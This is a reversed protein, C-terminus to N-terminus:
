DNNYGKWYHGPSLVTEGYCMDYLTHMEKGCRSCTLDLRPDDNFVIIWKHIGFLCLLKSTM